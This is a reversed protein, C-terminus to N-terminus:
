LGQQHKEMLFPQSFDLMLHLLDGGPGIEQELFTSEKKEKRSHSSNSSVDLTEFLM